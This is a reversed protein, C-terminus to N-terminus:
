PAPTLSKMAHLFVIPVFQLLLSETQTHPFVERNGQSSKPLSAPRELLSRYRQGQFIELGSQVLGYATQDSGLAPGAKPLHDSQLGGSAM